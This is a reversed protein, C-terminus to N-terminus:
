GRQWPRSYVIVSECLRMPLPKKLSSAYPNKRSKM